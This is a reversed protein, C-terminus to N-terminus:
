TSRSNYHSAARLFVPNVSGRVDLVVLGRGRGRYTELVAFLRARGRRTLSGSVHLQVGQAGGALAKAVLEALERLNERTVPIVAVGAPEPAVDLFAQIEAAIAAELRGAVSPDAMRVRVAPFAGSPEAGIQVEWPEGAVTRRVKMM